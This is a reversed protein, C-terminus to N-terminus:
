NNIEDLNKLIIIKGRDLKIYGEKEFKKLKRSVVERSSDIELALEKHTTYIISTKKMILNNIIREEISKHNKDEIKSITMSFKKYIDKYVYGLFSSDKILYKKVIDMPIICVASDSVATGIINLPKYELLCSIAEHCIEGKNINYLNTEDGDKNIRQIKINGSLVFLIGRCTDKASSISEGAYLINFIYNDELISNNKENIEKLVPYLKYLLELYNERSSKDNNMTM